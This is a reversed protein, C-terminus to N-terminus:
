GYRALSVPRWRRWDGVHTVNDRSGIIPRMVGAAPTRKTLLRRPRRGHRTMHALKPSTRQVIILLATCPWFEASEGRASHGLSVGRHNDDDDLM